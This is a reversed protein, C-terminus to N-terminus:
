GSPYRRQSNASSTRGNPPGRVRPARSRETHAIQESATKGRSAYCHFRRGEIVLSGASKSFCDGQERRVGLREDDGPPVFGSAPERRGDPSRSGALRDAAPQGPEAINSDAIVRPTCITRLTEEADTAAAQRILGDDIAHGNLLTEVRTLRHPRPCAGIVGIHANSLAGQRNEDYFMLIGALAFDGEPRGYKRFAWRRDSPWKPLHLETVIEDPQRLTSLSRRFFRRRTSHAIRGPRLPHNGRRLDGRRRAIRRGSRCPCSQGRGHRPQPDPLARCARHGHAVASAGDGVASRGRHRALTRAPDAARRALRARHTLRVPVWRPQSCPAQPAHVTMTSPAATRAQRISVTCASPVLTM